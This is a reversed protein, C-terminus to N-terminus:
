NYVRIEVATYYLSDDEGGTVGDLHLTGFRIYDNDVTETLAVTNTSLTSPPQIFLTTKEIDFAGELTADYYGDTFRTWVINGLTNELVIATPDDTGSQTLLATYVRYPRLDDVYKKQVYANDSYSSGYYDGGVLGQFGANTSILSVSSSSFSFYLEGGTNKSYLLGGSGDLDDGLSLYTEYDSGDRAIIRSGSYPLFEIDGTVPSGVETGTLPIFGSSGFDVYCDVDGPNCTPDLTDGPSLPAAFVTMAITLIATLFAVLPYKLPQIHKM